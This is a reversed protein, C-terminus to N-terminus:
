DQTESIEGLYNFLKAFTLKFYTYIVYQKLPAIFFFISKMCKLSKVRKKKKIM